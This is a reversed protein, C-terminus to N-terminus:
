FCKNSCGLHDLIVKPFNGNSGNKVWKQDHFSGNEICKPIKWPGSRAVVPEFRGLVVQKLMGLPRPGVKFFIMKEAGPVGTSGGNAGVIRRSPQGRAAGLSWQYPPRPMGNPSDSAQFGYFTPPQPHVLHGRFKTKLWTAWSVARGQNQAEKVRSLACEPWKQGNKPRKESMDHVWLALFPEQNRTSRPVRPTYLGSGTMQRNQSLKSTTQALFPQKPACFACNQSPVELSPARAGPRWRHPKPQFGPNPLPVM